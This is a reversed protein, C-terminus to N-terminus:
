EYRLSDVPNAVAAKITQYSVTLFAIVIAIVASFVFIWINIETKYVFEQLLNNLSFYAIPWAIFNAILVCKMFEKMLLLVLRYVSAGTVKRM